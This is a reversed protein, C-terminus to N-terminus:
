LLNSGMMKLIVAQLWAAPILYMDGQFLQMIEKLGLKRIQLIKIIGIDSSHQSSLIIHSFTNIGTGNM